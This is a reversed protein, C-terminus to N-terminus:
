INSHCLSDWFRTDLLTAMKNCRMIKHTLSLKQAPWYPKPPKLWKGLGLIPIAQFVPSEPARQRELLKVAEEQSTEQQPTLNRRHHSLTACFSPLIKQFCLWEKQFCLGSSALSGKREYVKQICNNVMGSAFCLCSPKVKSPASKLSNTNMKLGGCWEQM